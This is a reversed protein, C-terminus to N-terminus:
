VKSATPVLGCYEGFYFKEPLVCLVAGERKTTLTSKDVSTSTSRKRHEDVQEVFYDIKRDTAKAEMGDKAAMDHRAMKKGKWTFSIISSFSIISYWLLTPPALLWHAINRFIGVEEKITMLRKAHYDIVFAMAFVLYQIILFTLGISSLSYHLSGVSFSPYNVWPWPIGALVSNLGGCCLLVAYYMFFMFFWQMASWFPEGKWHIVFYHFSESSGVIWRRIQRSWEEYELYMSTGITPGSICPVPLQEVPVTENTACMWRVKAIIDDVGYRPNIFGAKMGLELPYSFVSMPNLNFSILGGLMMMSRMLCTIRNFFPRQDLDWNYFLPPQWVCNVVPKSPDPNRTNYTQELVRFYNPHFLSDTDCTTLTVSHHLLQHEKLYAYAERLAYNKNSCGGAIENAGKTHIAILFHGFKNTFAERITHEKILLDPTTAEFAMVVLLSEPHHQILLSGLCDFLIEIPDLYCPVIVVHMFKRSKAVALSELPTPILDLKRFNRWANGAIAAWILSLFMLFICNIYAIANPLAFSLWFPFTAILLILLAYFLTWRFYPNGFHGEDHAPEDLLKQNMTSMAPHALNHPFNLHFDCWGCRQLSFVRKLHKEAIESWEEENVWFAGFCDFCAGSQFM